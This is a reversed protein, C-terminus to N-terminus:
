VPSEEAARPLAKMAKIIDAGWSYSRPKVEDKNGDQFRNQYDM